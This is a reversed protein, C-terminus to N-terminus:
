GYTTLRGDAFVYVVGQEIRLDVVDAAKALGAIVMLARLTGGHATVVSDQVLDGYWATVREALAVYNEGSPPVHVWKDLERAGFSEPDRERMQPITLGEWDGYAVERLRDDLAYAAAPLGLVGRVIDMTETARILPSSVYAFSDPLRGDRAMLERLIAGSAAAQARGRVNIPVDQAGQYRGLANWDTEGHRIYYIAPKPMATMAVFAASM